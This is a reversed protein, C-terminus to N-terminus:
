NKEEESRTGQASAISRERITLYERRVSALTDADLLVRIKRRAPDPRYAHPFDGVPILSGFWEIAVPKGGVFVGGVDWRAMNSSVLSAPGVRGTSGGPREGGATRSSYSSPSQIPGPSANDLHKNKPRNKESNISLPKQSSPYFYGLVGKFGFFVIFIGISVFLALKRVPKPNNTSKDEIKFSEYFAFVRGDPKLVKGGFKNGSSMFEYRFENLVSLSRRVARIEFEILAIIHKSFSVSDQGLLYIDIGLHRHYQFFYIIDNNRLNSPFFRQAEDIVFIVNEYKETFKTQFDVTFFKEYTLNKEKLYNNLNVHPMKLGDINTVLTLKKNQIWEDFEKNWEYHKMIIQHMAYYTKGSGPIGTILKIAM